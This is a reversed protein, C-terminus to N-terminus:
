NVLPPLRLGAQATPLMISAFQHLLDRLLKNFAPQLAQGSTAPISKVLGHCFIIASL